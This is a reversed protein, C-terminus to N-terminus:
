DMESSAEPFQHIDSRGQELKNAKGNSDGKGTTTIEWRDNFAQCNLKNAECIKKIGKVLGFGAIGTAVPIAAVVGIGTLMAGGGLAALGSTMGAASLGAVAGSASIAGIAGGIGAVVGGAVGLSDSVKEKESESLKGFKAIGIVCLARLRNMFEDTAESQGTELRRITAESVGLKQASERRSIGSIERVLKLKAGCNAKTVEEELLKKRQNEDANKWESAEDNKM